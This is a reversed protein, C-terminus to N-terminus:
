TSYAPRFCGSSRTCTVCSIRLLNRLWHWEAQAESQAGRARMIEAVRDPTCNSFLSPSHLPFRPANRPARSIDIKAPSANPLAGRISNSSTSSKAPAKEEDPLHLTINTAPGRHPPPGRDLYNGQYPTTNIQNHRRRDGGSFPPTEIDVRGQSLVSNYRCNRKTCFSRNRERKCNVRDSDIRRSSQLSTRM